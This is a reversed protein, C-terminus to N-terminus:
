TILLQEFSARHAAEIPLPARSTADVNVHVFDGEAVAEAGNRAFLACRYTIASSGLRTIGIAVEVPEPYAIESFYTCSSSVVLYIPGRMKHDLIGQEILWDNVATDFLQYHIANNLHGYMDNDNWRLQAPRFHSFRGRASPQPRSSAAATPTSSQTM